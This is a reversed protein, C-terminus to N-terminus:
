RKTASSMAKLLAALAENLRRQQEPTKNEPKAREKQLQLAVEKMQALSAGEQKIKEIRAIVEDASSAGSPAAAQATQAAQAAQAQQAARAQAAAQAAAQAQAQAAAAQAAAQEARAAAMAEARARARLEEESEQPEQMVIPEPEVRVPEPEAAIPEPEATVAVPEDELEVTIHTPEDFTNGYAAQAQAYVPPENSIPEDQMVPAQEAAAHGGHLVSALASVYGNYAKVGNKLIASSILGAALRLIMVLVTVIAPVTLIYLFTEAADKVYFGVFFSLLICLIGASMVANPFSSAVSEKFPAYVCADPTIVDDPKAGTQKVTKYQKRVRTPLQKATANCTQLDPKKIVQKAIKKFKGLDGGMSLALLVVFVAVVIGAAIALWVVTNLKGIIDAIKEFM